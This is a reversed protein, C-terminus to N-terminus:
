VAAKASALRQAVADFDVTNWWAKLYEPRRNEYTLYYAHEWVDNGMIVQHGDSMPTDQNPTAVVDLKGEPTLVLWVWGSGFQTAGAGNFKEKFNDFSGFTGNIAEGLEGTPEGGKNPGMISWFISHNVHGGGNNRVATRINEPVSDLSRIIDEASRNELDTGAVADNFKAVYAAHHLGHHLEMTRKNIYPELADHAFTLAPVEFAM